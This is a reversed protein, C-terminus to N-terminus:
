SADGVQAAEADSAVRFAKAHAYAKIQEKTLMAHEGAALTVGELTCSSNVCHEYARDSAGPYLALQVFAHMVCGCVPCLSPSEPAAHWSPQQM